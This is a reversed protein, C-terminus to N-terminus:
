VAILPAVILMSAPLKFRESPEDNVISPVEEKPSTVTSPSILKSPPLKSVSWSSISTKLLLASVILAKPSAVSILIPAAVPTVVIFWSTLIVPSKSISPPSKVTDVVVNLKALVVAVVTLKAPAAVVTSIPAAVPVVFILLSRSTSPSTLISPLSKVTDVLVNLKALM